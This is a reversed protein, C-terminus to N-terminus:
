THACLIDLMNAMTATRQHAGLSETQRSLVSRNGYYHSCVLTWVSSFNLFKRTHLTQKQQNMPRTVSQHICWHHTHTNQTQQISLTFGDMAFGVVSSTSMGSLTTSHDLCRDCMPYSTNTKNLMSCHTKMAWQLQNCATLMWSVATPQTSDADLENCNTARWWCGAWQVQNCATLMWSVATPQVGDADLESCNTAHQWCGAWQLQNCTTLM